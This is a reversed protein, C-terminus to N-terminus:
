LFACCSRRLTSFMKVKLFLAEWLCEHIDGGVPPLPCCENSACVIPARRFIKATEILKGLQELGLRLDEWVPMEDYASGKIAQAKCFEHEAGRWTMKLLCCAHLTTAFYQLSTPILPRKSSSFNWLQSTCRPQGRFNLRPLFSAALELTFGFLINIKSSNCKYIDIAKQFHNVAGETDGMKSLEFGTCLHYLAIFDQNEGENQQRQLLRVVKQYESLASKSDGQESLTLRIRIGVTFVFRPEDAAVAAMTEIKRYEEVAETL